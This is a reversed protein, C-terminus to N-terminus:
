QSKNAAREAFWFVIVTNAIGLVQGADIRGVVFGWAVMSVFAYTITPRVISRFGEMTLHKM